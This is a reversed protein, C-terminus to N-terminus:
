LAQFTNSERTFSKEWFDTHKMKEGEEPRKKVILETSRRKSIYQKKYCKNDDVM